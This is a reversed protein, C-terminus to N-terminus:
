QNEEPMTSEATRQANIEAQEMESAHQARARAALELDKFSLYVQPFQERVLADLRTNDESSFVLWELSPSTSLIQLLQDETIMNGLEGHSGMIYLEELYPKNALPTFDVIENASLEIFRLNELYRLASIDQILNGNLRLEVLNTLNRIASIDELLCTIAVLRTLNHLNEIGDLTPMFETSIVLSELNSLRSLPQLSLPMVSTGTRIVFVRLTTINSVPSLDIVTSPSIDRNFEVLLTRLDSTGCLSAVFNICHVGEVHLEILRPFGELVRELYEQENNEGIERLLSVGLRLARVNPYDRIINLEYISTIRSTVYLDINMSFVKKLSPYSSLNDEEEIEIGRLSTFFALDDWSQIPQEGRNRYRNVHSLRRDEWEFIDEYLTITRGTNFFEIFTISALTDETIESLDKGLAGAVTQAFGRDAWQLPYSEWRRNEAINESLRIGGIVCLAILLIFVILIPTSKISVKKKM